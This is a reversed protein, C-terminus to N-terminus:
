HFFPRYIIKGNEITKKMSFNSGAAKVKIKIEPDDKEEPWCFTWTSDVSSFIRKKREEIYPDNRQGTIVIESDFCDYFIRKKGKSHLKLPSDSRLSVKNPIIILENESSYFPAKNISISLKYDEGYYPYLLKALPSALGILAIILGGLPSLSMVAWGAAIGILNIIIGASYVFANIKLLSGYLEKDNNLNRKLLRFFADQEFTSPWDKLFSSLIYIISILITSFPLGGFVPIYFKPYISILLLSSIFCAIASKWQVQKIEINIASREVGLDKEASKISDFRSASILSSFTYVINPYIYQMGWMLLVLIGFRDMMNFIANIIAGQLLGSGLSYIFSGGIFFTLDKYTGFSKFFKDWIDRWSTNIRELVLIKEANLILPEVNNKRLMNRFRHHVRLFETASVLNYRYVFFGNREWFRFNIRGPILLFKDNNNEESSPEQITASSSAGLIVWEPSIRGLFRELTLYGERQLFEKNYRTGGVEFDSVFILFPKRWGASFRIVQLIVDGIYQLQPKKNKKGIVIEKDKKQHYTLYYETKVKKLWHFANLLPLYLKQMPKLRSTELLYLLDSELSPSDKTEILALKTENNESIKISEAITTPKFPEPNSGQGINKPKAPRETFDGTTKIRRKAEIM